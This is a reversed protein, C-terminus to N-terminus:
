PNNLLNKFAERETDKLKEANVIVKIVSRVMQEANYPESTSTIKLILEANLALEIKSLREKMGLLTEITFDTLQQMNLRLKAENLRRWADLAKPCDRVRHQITELQEQCNTCAPSDRLGFKNLRSNSFIDGHAVRLLINRHRVSTLKRVRLTWSRLEGPTLLAGIKFVNIM